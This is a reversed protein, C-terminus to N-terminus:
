NENRIIRRVSRGEETQIYLFYVGPALRNVTVQKRFGADTDSWKQLLKGQRDYLRFEIDMPHVVAYDLYIVTSAPNPFVRFYSFGPLTNVATTNDVVFSSTVISCGNSDTITCQYAAAPLGTLDESASGNSWAFSYPPTGGVLNIDIAGNMGTNTEDTIESNVLVLQEPQYIEIDDVLLSCANADTVTCTYNGAPLNNVDETNAGNSWHFSLPVTGGTTLDIAGVTAGFCLNDDGQVSFLLPSPIIEMTANEMIANVESLTAGMLRVVVIEVPDDSFAVPSFGGESCTAKLTLKFLITEDPLTIGGATMDWWLCSLSGEAVDNLGFGQEGLGSLNFGDVSVLEFQSVNWQVSFQFSVIAVFDKVKVDIETTAGSSVSMGNLAFQTDQGYLASMQNLLGLFIVIVTKLKM